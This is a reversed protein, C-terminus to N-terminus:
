GTSTRSYSRFPLSPSIVSSLDFSKSPATSNQALADAVGPRRPFEAACYAFMEPAAGQRALAALVSKLPQTLLM